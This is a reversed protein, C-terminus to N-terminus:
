ANSPSEVQKNESHKANLTDENLIVDNERVVMRVGEPPCHADTTSDTRLSDHLIPSHRQGSSLCGNSSLNLSDM